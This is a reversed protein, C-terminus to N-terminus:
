RCNRSKANLTGKFRRRLNSKKRGVNPDQKGALNISTINLDTSRNCADLYKTLLGQKESVAVAHSCIRLSKFGPCSCKVLTNVSGNCKVIHFNECGSGSIVLFTKEATQKSPFFPAPQIAEPCTVIKVAKEWINSLVVDDLPSQLIEWSASLPGSSTFNAVTSREGQLVEAMTMARLKRVYTDRQKVTMKFLQDTTLALHTYKM